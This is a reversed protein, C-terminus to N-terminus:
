GVACLAAGSATGAQRPRRSLSFQGRLDFISDHLELWGQKWSSLRSFLESRECDQVNDIPPEPVPWPWRFFGLRLGSLIDAPHKRKKEETYTRTYSSQEMAYSLSVAILVLKFDVGVTRYCSFYFHFHSLLHFTWLASATSAFGALWAFSFSSRRCLAFVVMSRRRLSVIRM